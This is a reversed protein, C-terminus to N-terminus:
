RMATLTIRLAEKAFAKARRREIMVDSTVIRTSTAHLGVPGGASLEDDDVDSFGSEGSLPRSSM